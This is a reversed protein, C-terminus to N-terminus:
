GGGALTVIEPCIVNSRIGNSATSPLPSLGAPVAGAGARCTVTCAIATGPPATSAMSSSPYRAAVVRQAHRRVRVQEDARAGLHDLRARRRGPIERDAVVVFTAIREIRQVAAARAATGRVARAVQIRRAAEAHVAVRALSGGRRERDEIRHKTRLLEHQSGRGAGRERCSLQEPAILIPRGDPAETGVVAVDARGAVDHKRCPSDSSQVTGCVLGSPM